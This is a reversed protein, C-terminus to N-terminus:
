AARDGEGTRALPATGMRTGAVAAVIEAPTMYLGGGRGAEAPSVRLTAVPLLLAEGETAADSWGARWLRPRAGWRRQSGTGAGPM